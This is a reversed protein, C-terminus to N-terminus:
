FRKISHGVESRNESNLNLLNLSLVRVLGCACLRGDLAIYNLNHLSAEVEKPDEQSLDRQSFIEKQRFEANDDFRMKADLAYMNGYTDEAYPNIEIMSADNDMFAQYLSKIVQKTEEMREQLGLENAIDEAKADTVGEIIDIPVKIIAEPSEAAVDEINVGGQASAIIVPGGFSREMMIALYFERRPFKRECVLVKNCPVGKEGTQKTVLRDGIM